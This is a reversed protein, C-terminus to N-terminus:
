EWDRRKQPKLELLAFPRKPLPPDCSVRRSIMEGGLALHCQLFQAGLM